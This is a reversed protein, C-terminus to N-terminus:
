IMLESKQRERELRRARKTASIKAGHGKPIGKQAISRKRNTEPTWRRGISGRSAEIAIRISDPTGGFSSQPNCLLRGLHASFWHQERERKRAVSLGPEIAELVECRFAAEGYKTWEDQLPKTCHIGRRLM